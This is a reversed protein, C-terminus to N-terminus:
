LSHCVPDSPTDSPTLRISLRRSQYHVAKYSLVAFAWYDGRRRSTEASCGDTGTERRKIVPSVQHIIFLVEDAVQYPFYALNDALYLLEQLSKRQFTAM